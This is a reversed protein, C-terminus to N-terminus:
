LGSLIGLKYFDLVRMNPKKSRLNKLIKSSLLKYITSIIPSLGLQKLAYSVKLGPNMRLFTERDEKPLKKYIILLNKAANEIQKLYIDTPALDDHFTGNDIYKIKYGKKKLMFGFLTDEHGYGVISEDFKISNFLNRHILFNSSRFTKESNSNCLEASFEEREKGYKWRLIQNNSPPNDEFRTGGCIVPSNSNGSNIYRELFDPHQIQCDCDLMILWDYKAKQALLNRIKSRGINQPLEEYVINPDLSILKRNEEKYQESADDILLIQYPISLLKTQLCLETVLWSMDHNYIPICINICEILDHKEKM